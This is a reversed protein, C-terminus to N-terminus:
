VGQCGVSDGSVATLHTLGARAFREEAEPPLGRTDGIVLGTLLAADGPSLARGAAARVRQRVGNTAAILRGPQGVVRVQTRPRLELAAGLRRLHAGFGDRPLRRATARLAVRTGLDPAADLEPLHLLARARTAAGDVRTVRVLTWAGHRSAQPESVVVAEILTSRQEGALAVLPGRELLAARGATLGLGAVMLLGVVLLLRRTPARGRLGAALAFPLAAVLAAPGRLLCGLELAAVLVWVQAASM